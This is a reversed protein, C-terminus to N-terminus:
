HLNKPLHQANQHFEQFHFLFNSSYSPYPKDAFVPSHFCYHYDAMQKTSSNYNFGKFDVGNVNLQIDSRSNVNLVKAKLAFTQNTVTVATQTPSVPTIVPAAQVRNDLENNINGGKNGGDNGGPIIGKPAPVTSTITYNLTEISCDNYVTVVATNVGANLAFWPVTVKNDVFTFPATTGNVSVMVGSADAINTTNLIIQYQSLTTSETLHNPAILTYTLPVCEELYCIGEWGPNVFYQGYPEGAAGVNCGSRVWVGVVCEGEHEWEALFTGSNGELDAFTQTEGNQLNIIVNVLEMDSTIEVELNSDSFDVTIEPECEEVPAEFVVVYNATITGCDNTMTVTVNNTLAEVFPVEFILTGDSLTFEIAVDNIEVSIQDATLNETALSITVLEAATMIPTTTPAIMTYAPALCPPTYTVTIVETVTECGEVIIEIENPGEVLTVTTVLTHAFPNYEFPVSVGNFRFLIDEPNGESIDSYITTTAEEVVAGDTISTFSVSPTTCPEYTIQYTVTETSCDNALTVTIINEGEALNLSTLSVVGGSLTPSVVAGNLTATVDTSNMVNATNLTINATPEVSESILAEPTVLTYTVPDCPKIYTVVLAGTGVACGEAVLELTNTGETLTMSASLMNSAAYFDFPISTGNLTLSIQDATEINTVTAVFNYAAGDTSLANSALSVEPASCDDHEITYTITEASCANKVNVVITNSGDVLAVANISLLNDIYTFPIEVGGNTVTIDAAIVHQVILNINYKDEASETTLTSPHGLSYNIPTCPITYLIETNKTTTECGKATLKITNSVGAILTMEADLGGTAPDFVFPVPADNLLLTIESADSINSVNAEFNYIATNVEAPMAGITIVPPKCADYNITYNVVESSCDNTLGILLTNKGDKLTVGSVNIVNTAPNFTFPVVAGNLKVSVQGANDIGFVSLAANFSNSYATSVLTTPKMLAHTIKDCPEKYMITAAAKASECGEADITISNPGEALPIAATLLHTAVNFDFDVVTGNVRLTIADATSINTIVASFNLINEEVTMGPKIDNMVIVPPKCGNYNITYNVTAKSCENTLNVTLNNVGDALNLSAITINGSVADFSIPKATGNLSASVQAPDSIGVAHLTVSYTNETVTINNVAPVLLNTIISQCPIKRVIKITKVAEGCANEATLVITNEGVNLHIAESFNSTAANYTFSQSVGNVLLSVEAAVVNTITATFIITADNTSSGSNHSLDSIVPLKCENRTITYVIVASGCATTATVVVSNSGVALPLDSMTITGTAADFSFPVTTGNVKVSLEAAAAVHTSSATLSIVEALTTVSTSMATSLTPELCPADPAEYNLTFTSQNTGCANTVIVNIANSGENLVIDKIAISTEANYAMYGQSVGNLKLEVTTGPSHNNIQADVTVNPEDVTSYPVPHIYGITPIICPEEDVELTVIALDSASGDPNSVTVDFVNNGAILTANYILQHEGVFSYSAGPIIVGNQKLVIQDKGDIHATTATVTFATTSVVFPSSPPNIFSVTPPNPVEPKKYIIIRTKVDTGVPNTGTIQVTNAGNNLVLPVNLVKTVPNYMFSTTVTGNVVVNINAAAAVNLVSAVLNVNPTEFVQNDAAPYTINVIPPAQPITKKYIITTTKLDSGFANTGQVEIVNSGEVLSTTFDMLDSSTSYSFVTSLAGNIRLTIDSAGAVNEVKTTVNYTSTYVTIPNVNPDVFTVIPPKPTEPKTYILTTNAVDSGAANVGTIQVNNAGETLPTSFLIEKTGTNFSFSSVLNGNVRVTLDGKTEVNLATAKINATNVTYYHPSKGAPNVFSVIPPQITIPKEYNIQVTKSDSGAANTATVTVTNTGEVLNLSANLVKSGLAYSFSNLNVGNLYVRIQSKTDVNLVTAVLGFVNSSTMYPTYPPNTITVIPPSIVEEEEEYVIITAEYDSGAENVGTIEFLNQGPHLVVNSEFRDTTPNYSFNTNINGDQKFTVDARRDVNYINARIKFTKAMTTYPSTSPDFIDVVPLPRTVPDVVPDVVPDIVPDPDDFDDARPDEQTTGKGNFLHFKITLATYHYKDNLINTTGNSNNPMGDFLNTRTWTMKHELGIAVAPHIQKSIGFGFSPMWDVNYSDDTGVIDTEYDGDQFNQLNNKTFNGATNYDYINGNTLIDAATHYGTIGIGGFVSLNWGTRQRLRNTNLVLEVSGRLLNTRYNPIFYGISDQYQNINNEGYGGLGDTTTSDLTYQETGQGQVQAHLFRARVDWSFIKDPEMGISKGFTLGYGGRIQYPVQTLTTWTGGANLGIFWRSDRDYNVYNQSFGQFVALFSIALLTFFRKM